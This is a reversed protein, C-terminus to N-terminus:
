RYRPEGEGDRLGPGASGQESPERQSLRDCYESHSEFLGDTFYERPCAGRLSERGQEGAVTEGRQSRGRSSSSSSTTVEETAQVEETM